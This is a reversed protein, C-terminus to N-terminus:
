EFLAKIESETLYGYYETVIGNGVSMAFQRCGTEDAAPIKTLWQGESDRVLVEGSECLRDITASDLLVVRVYCPVGEKYWTFVSTGDEQLAEEESSVSYGAPAQLSLGAIAMQKETDLAAGSYQREAETGAATGVVNGQTAGDTGNPEGATPVSEAPIKWDVASKTDALFFETDAESPSVEEECAGELAIGYRADQSLKIPAAENAASDKSQSGGYLLYVSGLVVCMLCAACLAGYRGMFQVIKKKASPQRESRNLLEEDVGSLAEMLRLAQDQRDFSKDSM